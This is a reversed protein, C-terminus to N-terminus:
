YHRLIDIFDTVTMLGVFRRERSDWLPAAQMDHEVLAYFALQVPISSDFVVVK